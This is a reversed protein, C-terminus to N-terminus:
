PAELQDNQRESHSSLRERSLAVLIIRIILPVDSAEMTVSISTVLTAAPADDRLGIASDLHEDAGPAM